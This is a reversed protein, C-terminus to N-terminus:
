ELQLWAEIDEATRYGSLVRGDARVLSPTSTLGLARAASLNREVAAFDCEPASTLTPHGTMVLAWAKARDSSCWAAHAALQSEPSHGPLVFTKLEVNKLKLLEPHIQRCFGCDASEFLYLPGGLEGTSSTAVIADTVHLKSVDIQVERKPYFMFALVGATAISVLPIAFRHALKSITHMTKLAPRGFRPTHVRHYAM